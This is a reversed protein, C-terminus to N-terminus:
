VTTVNPRDGSQLKRESHPSTSATIMTQNPYQTRWDFREPSQASLGHSIGPPRTVLRKSGNM